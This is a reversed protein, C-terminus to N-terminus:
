NIVVSPEGFDIAWIGTGTGVDLVRSLPKEKPIPSTFLKGGFTLLM